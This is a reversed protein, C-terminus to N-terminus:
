GVENWTAQLMNPTETAVADRIRAKLRQLDNIKVRYVTNEVYGWLFFDLPTLDPSRPPSAIPGSKGIWRQGPSEQCLPLFTAAGWRTPPYNATTILAACVAGAHGLVFTRGCDEGSIFVTWHVQRANFWGVRERWSLLSMHIKVAGVGSIRYTAEGTFWVQRLFDSSADTRELMDVALNTRAVQNSPKLTHIMQIKYERLRLRKHVVDHVTSRPIQLYSCALLVFQNARVESSHRELVISM